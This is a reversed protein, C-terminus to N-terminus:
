THPNLLIGSPHMCEDVSYTEDRAGAMVAQCNRHFAIVDGRIRVCEVIIGHSSGPRVITQTMNKTGMSMDDDDDMLLPIQQAPRRKDGRYLRIEFSATGGGFVTANTENDNYEATLSRRMLCQTIRVAVVSPDVDSIYTCNSSILPPYYSPIPKLNTDSINWNTAPRLNMWNLKPDNQNRHNQLDNYLQSFPNDGNTVPSGPSLCGSKYSTTTPRRDGRYHSSLNTPSSLSEDIRSMPLGDSLRPIKSLSLPQPGGERRGRKLVPRMM